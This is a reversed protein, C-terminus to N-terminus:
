IQKNWYQLLIKATLERFEPTAIWKSHGPIKNEVATLATNTALNIINPTKNKVKNIKTNLASITALNTFRPIENQVENPKANFTANTALNTIDSIKDESDKVKANYVDKKVVDNKLVDSLKSLDVTDPVLKAVYLKDVKSKLSNLGTRVKKLKDIDLKDVEFKLSALNVKKVFKSTDFGAVNKLNAKTAYDSWDLEVNVRGESSKPEAFYEKKNTWSNFYTGYSKWKVYLKDGKRQMVKEVRFEKQNTKQLEKEYCRELSKKEMSIVLLMHGDCLVKLKKLCLFTKLGIQFIPKWLFVKINQYELMTVLKSNIVKRIIKKILTLIYVQSDVPM